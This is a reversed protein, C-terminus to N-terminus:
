MQCLLHTPIIAVLVVIENSDRRQIKFDRSNTVTINQDNSVTNIKHRKKSM